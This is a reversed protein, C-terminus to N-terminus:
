RTSQRVILETGLINLAPTYERGEDKARIQAILKETALAGIRYLPQSVTTLSPNLMPCIKINDFGMVSIDEPIRLGKDLFARMINIAKMDTTAFMADPLAGSALMNQTLYYFSDEDSTQRLIFREDAPLGAEALADKYGEFRDRYINLECNGLAIGIKKHGTKILYSVANRAARRNDIGVADVTDDYFRTTLVLPIGSDHLVRIHESDPRMSCVIFGDAWRTSLKDLYVKETEAHDDTNCLIVSIGNQRAVDEVGRIIEPFIHNQISPVLLAIMNSRGTKLSTALPNPVYALQEIVKSVRKRTEDNVYGKESLVRSVTSTSVGALNAVDKINSMFRCRREM